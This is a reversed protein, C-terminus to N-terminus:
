RSLEMPPGNRDEYTAPPLVPHAYLLQVFEAENSVETALTDVPPMTLEDALEDAALSRVIYADQVEHLHRLPLQKVPLAVFREEVQIFTAASTVVSAHVEESFRQLQQAIVITNGVLAFSRQEEFGVDGAILSGTHVGASVRFSRRGESIWRPKMSAVLRSAELAACLGRYEHESANEPDIGFVAVLGDELFREIMGANRTVATGCLLHCENIYKLAAHPSLKEILPAFNNIRLVVVTAATHYRALARTDKRALIGDVILHPLYAGLRERTEQAQQHLRLCAAVSVIVAATLGVILIGLLLASLTAM